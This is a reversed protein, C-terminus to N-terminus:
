SCAPSGKGDEDSAAVLAKDFAVISATVTLSRSNLHDIAEFLPWAREAGVKETALAYQLQRVLQASTSSAYITVLKMWLFALASAVIVAGGALGTDISISTYDHIVLKALNLWVASFLIMMGGFFMIIALSSGVVIAKLMNRVAPNWRPHEAQKSLAETLGAPNVWAPWVPLQTSMALVFCTATLFSMAGQASGNWNSAGTLLALSVAGLTLLAIGESLRSYRTVIGGRALARLIGNSLKSESLTVREAALVITLLPSIVAVFVFAGIAILVAFGAQYDPNFRLFYVTLASLAALVVTQVGWLFSRHREFRAEQQLLINEIDM